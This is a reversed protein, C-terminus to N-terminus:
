TRMITITKIMISHKVGICHRTAIYTAIYRFQLYVIIFMFNFYEQIYKEPHAATISAHEVVLRSKLLNDMVM